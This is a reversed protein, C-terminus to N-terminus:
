IFFQHEAHGFDGGCACDGCCDWAVCSLHVRRCGGAGQLQPQSDIPPCQGRRTRGSACWPVSRMWVPADCRGGFYANGCSRRSSGKPAGIGMVTGACGSGHLMVLSEGGGSCFVVGNVSCMSGVEDSASAQYM